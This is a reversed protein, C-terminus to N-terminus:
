LQSNTIATRTRLYYLDPVLENDNSVEFIYRRRGFIWICVIRKKTWEWLPRELPAFLAMIQHMYLEMGDEIVNLYQSVCTVKLLNRMRYELFLMWQSGQFTQTCKWRFALCSLIFISACKLMYEFVIVIVFSVGVITGQQLHVTPRPDYTQCVGFYVFYFLLIFLYIRRIIFPWM